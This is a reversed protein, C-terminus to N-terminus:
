VADSYNLATIIATGRMGCARNDNRTVKIASTQLASGGHSGEATLGTCDICAETICFKVQKETWVSLHHIKHCNGLPQNESDGGCASMM